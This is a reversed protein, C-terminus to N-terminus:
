NQPLKLGGIMYLGKDKNKIGGSRLYSPYVTEGKQAQVDTVFKKRM